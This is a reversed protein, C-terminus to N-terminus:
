VFTLGELDKGKLSRSVEGNSKTKLFGKDAQKLMYYDNMGDGYAIVTYGAKQLHKTIYLKTEASMEAGDFCPIALIHLSTNGSPKM